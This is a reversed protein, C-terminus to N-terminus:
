AGKVCYSLKGPREILIGGENLCKNKISVNETATLYCVGLLIFLIVSIAILNGKWNDDFM